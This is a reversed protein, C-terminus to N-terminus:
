RDGLLASEMLRRGQETLRWPQPLEHLVEVWDAEDASWGPEHRTYTEPAGDPEIDGQRILARVTSVRVTGFQEDVDFQTHQVSDSGEDHLLGYADIAQLAKIQASSREGRRPAPAKVIVEVHVLTGWAALVSEPLRENVRSFATEIESVYANPLETEDRLASHLADIADPQSQAMDVLVGVFQDRLEGAAVEGFPYSPDRRTRVIFRRRPLPAIQRTETVWPM